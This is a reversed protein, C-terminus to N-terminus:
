VINKTMEKKKVRTTIKECNCSFMIETGDVSCGNDSENNIILRVSMKATIENIIPPSISLGIDATL